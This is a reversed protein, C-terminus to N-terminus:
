VGSVHSQPPAAMGRGGHLMAFGVGLAAHRAENVQVRVPFKLTRCIQPLKREFYALYLAVEDATIPADASRM